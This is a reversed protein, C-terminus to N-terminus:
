RRTIYIPFFNFRIYNYDNHIVKSPVIDPVVPWLLDLGRINVKQRGSPDFKVGM